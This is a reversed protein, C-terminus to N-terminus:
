SSTQYRCGKLGRNRILERHLTSRHEELKTAIGGISEGSDKLAYLQCRQDRSLHHYDKPM